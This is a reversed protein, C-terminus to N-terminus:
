GVQLTAAVPPLGSPDRDSSFADQSVDAHLSSLVIQGPHNHVAFRFTM